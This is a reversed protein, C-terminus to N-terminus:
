DYEEAVTPGTWPPDDIILLDTRHGVLTRADWWAIADATMREMEARLARQFPSEPARVARHNAAVMGALLATWDEGHEAPDTVVMAWDTGADTQNGIDLVRDIAELAADLHRSM